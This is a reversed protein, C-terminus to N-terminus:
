LLKRQVAKGQGVKPASAGSAEFTMYSKCKHPLAETSIYRHAPPLPAVDDNGSGSEEHRFQNKAKARTAQARLRQYTGV